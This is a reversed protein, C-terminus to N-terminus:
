LAMNNKKTDKCGFFNNKKVGRVTDQSSHVSLVSEAM